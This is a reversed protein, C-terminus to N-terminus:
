GNENKFEAKNLPERILKFFISAMFFIPVCLAALVKEGDLGGEVISSSVASFIAIALWRYSKELSFVYLAAGAAFWGFYRFSFASCVENLLSLSNIGLNKQVIKLFISTVFVLVLAYILSDRGRLYYIVAAFFYFKFEIFLSWFSGEIGNIPHGIIYSWWSPELFTLGPLVSEWSPLGAPREVFFNSTSFIIVTCILMAPFLRIWRRYLFEKITLCKELTMLIVFGSILFFLEVGLWGYKFFYFDSYQGGYPVL